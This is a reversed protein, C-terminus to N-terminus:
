SKRWIRRMAASFCDVPPGSFSIIEAFFVSVLDAYVGTSYSRLDPIPLYKDINLELKDMESEKITTM